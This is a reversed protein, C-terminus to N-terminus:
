SAPLVGLRKAAPAYDGCRRYYKRAEAANGACEYIVGINYNALYSNVGVVAFEEMQTAKSFESVAQDFMANNMYILGMLFPFDARTAFAEYINEFQLAEAHRKLKLLAYGYAEVLTRVYEQQPNVDFELALGYFYCAQEADNLATYSQGIQFYTYPDAGNKQLDLFLLDLNREAKEAATEQNVYGEHHFSAPIPFYQPESDDRPVVQEHIIGEYHHFRRNFLRAVRETAISKPQDDGGYPNNRIIMGIGKPYQRIAKEMGALDIEDLFEDGDVVLVWENSAQKLSFNRAASFDNVWQFPCVKDAYEEAIAVTRDASGTDAVIIEPFHPRLLRLCKGLYREENKTIM